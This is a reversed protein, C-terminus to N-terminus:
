DSVFRMNKKSLDTDFGRPKSFNVDLVQKLGLFFMFRVKKEFGICAWTLLFAKYINQVGVLSTSIQFLCFLRSPNMTPNVVDECSTFPDVIM